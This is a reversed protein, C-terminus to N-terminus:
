VAQKLQKKKVRLFDWTAGLTLVIYMAISLNIPKEQLLSFSIYGWIVMTTLAIASHCIHCRVTSQIVSGGQIIGVIIMFYGWFSHSGFLCLYSYQTQQFVTENILLIGGSLILVLSSSLAQPRTDTNQWLFVIRSKLFKYFLSIYIIVGYDYLFSFDFLKIGAFLKTNKKNRFISSLRVM